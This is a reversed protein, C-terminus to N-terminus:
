GGKSFAFCRVSISVGRSENWKYKWCRTSIGPKKGEAKCGLHRSFVIVVEIKLWTILGAVVVM